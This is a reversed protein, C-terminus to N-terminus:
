VSGSLSRADVAINILRSIAAYKVDGEIGEEFPPFLTLQNPSIDSTDGFRWVPSIHRVSHSIGLSAEASYV